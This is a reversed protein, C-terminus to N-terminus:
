EGGTGMQRKMRFGVPSIVLSIVSRIGIAIVTGCTFIGFRSPYATGQPFCPM